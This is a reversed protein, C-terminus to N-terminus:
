RHIHRIIPGRSWVPRAPPSSLTCCAMVPKSCSSTPSQTARRSHPWRWCTRCRGGHCCRSQTRLAGSPLFPDTRREFAPGAVLRCFSVCRTAIGRAPNLLDADHTAPQVRM